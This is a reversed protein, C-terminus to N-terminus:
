ANIVNQHVEETRTRHVFEGNGKARFFVPEGCEPCSFREKRRPIDEFSLFSAAKVEQEHGLIYRDVAYQM